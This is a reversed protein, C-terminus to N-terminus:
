ETIFETYYADIVEEDFPDETCEWMTLVVIRGRVVPKTRNIQIFFGNEQAWRLALNSLDEDMYIEEKEKKEEYWKWRHDADDGQILFEEEDFDNIEDIFVIKRYFGDSEEARAANQLACAGYILLAVALTGFFLKAILKRIFEFEVCIFIIVVVAILAFLM